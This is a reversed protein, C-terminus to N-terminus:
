ELMNTINNISVLDTTDFLVHSVNIYLTRDRAKYRLTYM